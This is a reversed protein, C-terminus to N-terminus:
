MSQFLCLGLAFSFDENYKCLDMIFIVVAVWSRESWGLGIGWGLCFMALMSDEAVGARKRARKRVERARKKRAKAAPKRRRFFMFRGGPGLGHGIMPLRSRIPERGWREM